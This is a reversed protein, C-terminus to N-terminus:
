TGAPVVGAGPDSVPFIATTSTGIVITGSLKKVESAESALV